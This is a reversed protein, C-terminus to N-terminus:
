ASSGLVAWLPASPVHDWHPQNTGFSTRELTFGPISRRLRSHDVAGTSLASPAVYRKGPAHAGPIPCNGNIRAGSPRCVGHNLYNRRDGSRPQTIKKSQGKEQPERGLSIM